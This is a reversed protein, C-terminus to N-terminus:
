DISCSALYLGTVLKSGCSRTLGNSLPLMFVLMVFLVMPLLEVVEDDDIDEEDIDDLILTRVSVLLKLDGGGGELGGGGGGCDAEIAVLEVYWLEM